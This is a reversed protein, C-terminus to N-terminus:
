VKVNIAGVNDDQFFDRINSINTEELKEKVNVHISYGLNSLNNLIKEKSKDFFVIFNKNCEISIDMNCNFVQIFADVEGMNITKVTTVIKVNQSDIKKGKKREDKIILKCGYEDNNINVPIDLYYYQNSMSNFVKFDNMNNQLANMVKDYFGVKTDSKIDLITKIINKMEDTKINIQEKVIKSLDKSNAIEINKIQVKEVNDKNGKVTTEKVQESSTQEVKDNEELLLRKLEETKDSNSYIIERAKKISEETGIDLLRNIEKITSELEIKVNGISEKNNNVNKKNVESTDENSKIHTEKSLENEVNQKINNEVNNNSNNNKIANELEKLAKYIGYDKKFVKNFSDINDQTLDINNELLTLLDEESLNKFENFFSKLSNEIKNGEISNRSIGKSQMYKDIFEEQYNSDISIKNIFDVLTKVKSINEKNLPMNHSVMKKLLGYESKSLNINQEKLLNEISSSEDPSKEEVGSNVLKIKIKGEEFGEVEFKVLGDPIFDLPKELKAQFQWGDILRLLIENKVQDFNIIKALFNEGLEFSIKNFIRKSNVNYVSNVNWIGAM